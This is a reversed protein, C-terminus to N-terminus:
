CSNLTEKMFSLTVRLLGDPVFCFMLNYKGQDLTWHFDKQQEPLPGLFVSWPQWGTKVLFFVSRSVFFAM